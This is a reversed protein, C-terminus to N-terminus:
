TGSDLTDCYLPNTWVVDVSEDDTDLGSDYLPNSWKIIRYISDTMDDGVSLQYSVEGLYKSVLPLSCSFNFGFAIALFLALYIILSFYMIGCVCVLLYAWWQGDLRTGLFNVVFWMNIAIVLLSLLSALIKTFLGNKFDGMIRESSTFTLTPILAFPLQLSMVANLLDNMGTLDNINQYFAIFFTPTIAITRTLLVRQWRKWRLNLFGEMVFQGVYTGTMTSSQGAALIGISWIYMCAAGFTCGLFVGAKYIDADVLEGDEPFIKAHTSNASVCSDHVEQNTVGYLGKAFVAVVFVNIIFSCLLAICAEIFFYKNAEKVDDKNKRDVDRSKVLASHLYLNHPMIVAGVIGVAQLLARTDCNYCGPIFLGKLVQLQDPKAVGYEYGFTVAMVFILFGFFAELKRLGYRDLALFTFTDIITILVGGWLPIAENSLLYLAISTGIVEQMDSGIIAIEVMIWVMIRPVRPYYRYCVEALHLGTVTGLRASLRQMVLGLITAWMLVWLLKYSAAAGSQLDSEINGPDLYAISMLFGPGTFAWLKRFSFLKNEVEPIHIREDAFYTDFNEEGPSLMTHETLTATSNTTSTPTPPWTSQHTTNTSAEPSGSTCSKNEVQENKTNM